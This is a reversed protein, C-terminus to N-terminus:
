LSNNGGDDKRKTYIIIKEGPRLATRFSTASKFTKKVLSRFLGSLLFRVLTHKYRM